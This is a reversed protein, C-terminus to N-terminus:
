FRIGVDKVLQYKIHVGVIELGVAAILVGLLEVGLHVLQGLLDCAPFLVDDGRDHM